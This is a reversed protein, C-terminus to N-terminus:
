YRQEELLEGGESFWQYLGVRKGNSYEGREKVNGNSWWSMYTGHYDGNACQAELVLAGREDWARSRGNLKGDVYETEAIKDGVANRIERTEIPTERRNVRAAILAAIPWVMLFSAGWYVPFLGKSVLCQETTGAHCDFFHVGVSIMFAFGAAVLIPYKLM